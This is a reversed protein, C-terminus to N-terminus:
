RKLLIFFTACQAVKERFQKYYYYNLIQSMLRRPLIPRVLIVVTITSTFTELVAQIYHNSSLIFPRRHWNRRTQGGGSLQYFTIQAVTSSVVLVPAKNGCFDETDVASRHMIEWCTSCYHVVSPLLRRVHRCADLV